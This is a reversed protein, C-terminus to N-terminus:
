DEVKVAVARAADTAENLDGDSLNLGREEAIEVITLFEISEIAEEAAQQAVAKIDELM